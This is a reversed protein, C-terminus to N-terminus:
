APVMAGLEVGEWGADLLARFPLDGPDGPGRVHDPVVHCHGLVGGWREGKGGLLKGARDRALPSLLRQVPQMWPSGVADVLVRRPIAFADCLVGVVAVVAAIQVTWLDPSDPHQVIEIGVTWGNAHGAHWAMWRAPDASQLVTGDTDITLHWSVDRTTTAQYRALAEARTSPRAGERLRAGRRGRTTHLLVARVKSRDRAKGDTIPPARSPDSEWTALDTVGPVEVLAGDLILASM